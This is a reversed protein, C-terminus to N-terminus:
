AVRKLFATEMRWYGLQEYFRELPTREYVRGIDLAKGLALPEYVRGDDLVKGLTPAAMKVFTCGNRRAWDEAWRLLRPGLTGSRYPPDVWWGMEEAISLGSLMHTVIALAIFGVLEPGLHRLSEPVDDREAVLVLGGTMSADFQAGIRDRDVTFVSRLSADAEQTYPNEGHFRMALDVVRARDGVIAPRLIM